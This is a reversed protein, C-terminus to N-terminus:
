TEPVKETPPHLGTMTLRDGQLSLRRRQGPTGGLIAKQRMGKMVERALNRSYFDAISAMIGHLLVGNSTADISETNSM